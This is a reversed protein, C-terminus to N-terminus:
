AAKRRKREEILDAAKLQDLLNSTATLANEEDLDKWEKLNEMLKEVLRDNTDSLKQKEKALKEEETEPESSQTKGNKKKATQAAAAVSVKGKTVDKILEPDGSKLIAKAREISATGVKLLASAEKASLGAKTYQNAGLVLNSLNAAVMARQSENLHRRHLNASLVFGVADDGTFEQVVPDRGLIQCARYRNRGDLIKGEYVWIPEQQGRAEIDKVLADFAEGDLTPFVEAFDHPELLKTM